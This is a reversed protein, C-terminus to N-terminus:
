DSIFKLFSHMYKGVLVGVFSLVIDYVIKLGSQAAIWTKIFMTGEQKILALMTMYIIGFVHIALVGLVAGLFMNLLSYKKSLFSGCIGVGFIYALIYGFGYEGAYALGGGLAFVPIIFLGLIIYLCTCTLALRKGLLSCIFMLAPIQPIISFNYIFDKQEYIKDFSFNQPLVYHKIDLDVFTAGVILLVCLIVLMFNNVPIKIKRQKRDLRKMKPILVEESM